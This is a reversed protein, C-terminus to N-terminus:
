APEGPASLVIQRPSKSEETIEAASDPAAGANIPEVRRRLQSVLEASLHSELFELALGLLMRDQRHLARFAVKLADAPLFVALLNFVHELSKGAQAPLEQDPDVPDGCGGSDDLLKRNRWLPPPSALEREVAAMLAVRDFQLGESMRHLFELARGANFRIEFRPELLASILGDVARQSSTYALIQPIKRRVAFDRESDILADVLQGVCRYAHRLLFARSFEFSESWALLRIAFPVVAADYSQYPSLASQVRRANGSRLDTLRSIVPDHGGTESMAELRGTNHPLSVTVHLLAALTISDQVDAENLIRARNLLGNELARSYAADMRQTMWFSLGALAVTVLLVLESSHLPGLLLLVQLIAAGVLDGLRDCSVDILTKTARKDRPPVPAFFLEYSSRLFSGRLVLELARAVPAMVVSALLLSAGAGVAVATSYCQLTRGLGFRRLTFPTLFSQVVFTLIQGATYFFAFYRTLQPGQGYAVAASSKFLYDLLTASVTGLLVLVALNVLFPARQFASRAAEWQDTTDPPPQSPGAHATGIPRLVFWAALHLCALLVLLADAGFLAASREALLGGCVGGITGAGAIRGFQRKATRPDFVEGAASWFGSLLFSGFGVLHLYVLTIVVGRAGGQFTRLLAFEVLHLLSGLALAGPVLRLPGYRSLLRTFAMGLLVAVLAALMVIKPLDRPSFQSLFLGDRVAKGAVQHALMLGSGLLFM